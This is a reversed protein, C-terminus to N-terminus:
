QFLARNRWRACSCDDSCRDLAPTISIVMNIVDNVIDLPLWEVMTDVPANENMSEMIKNLASLEFPQNAPHIGESAVFGCLTNSPSALLSLQYVQDHLYEANNILELQERRCKLDPNRKIYKQYVNYHLIRGTDRMLQVLESFERTAILMMAPLRVHEADYYSLNIEFNTILYSAFKSSSNMISMYLLKALSFSDMDITFKRDLTDIVPALEPFMAVQMYIM